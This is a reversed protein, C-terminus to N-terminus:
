RISVRSCRTVKAGSNMYTAVCILTSGKPIRTATLSRASRSVAIKQSGVTVEQRTVQASESSVIRWSLKAERYGPSVALSSIVSASSGQVTVKTKTWPGPGNANLARVSVKYEGPHPLSQTLTRNEPELTYTIDDLNEVEFLLQYSLVPAALSTSAKSFAVTINQAATSTARITKIATPPLVSATDFSSRLSGTKWSYQGQTTTGYICVELNRYSHKPDSITTTGVGVGVTKLKKDGAFVLIKPATLGSMTLPDVWRLRWGGSIKEFEAAVPADAVPLGPRGFNILTSAGTIGRKDIAAVRVQGADRSTIVSVNTDWDNVFTMPSGRFVRKPDQTDWAIFRSINRLDGHTVRLNLQYTNGETCVNQPAYFGKNEVQPRSSRNAVSMIPTSVYESVVGDKSAAVYAVLNGPGDLEVGLTHDTAEVIFTKDGFSVVYNDVDDVQDWTVDAFDQDRQTLTPNSPSPPKTTNMLYQTAQDVRLRRLDSVYVDDMTDAQDRLVSLYNDITNDPDVSRLVAIAAAVVPTAMSTGSYNQMQGGLVSSYVDTGQALLDTSPSIDSFSSIEGTSTTSGVSIVNTVCAPHAIQSYKGGNGNAAVPAVGADWLDAMINTVSSSQADCTSGRREGPGGFSMNISVIRYQVHNDLVWQLGSLISSSPLGSGCDGDCVKISIVEAGPAIGQYTKGDVIRNKGAIIGSVHTGHSNSTASAGSGQQFNTGNPCSANTTFCVEQAIKGALYPHDAQVGTDLVAVRFPLNVGTSDSSGDFESSVNVQGSTVPPQAPDFNTLTQYLFDETVRDKWEGNSIKTFTSKPIEVRADHDTLQTWDVGLNKALEIPVIAAVEQDSQAQIESSIAPTAVLLGALALGAIFKRTSLRNRM